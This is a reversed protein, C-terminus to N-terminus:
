RDRDPSLRRDGLVVHQRRDGRRQQGRLRQLVGEPDLARNLKWYERGTVADLAVIELATGTYMVGDVVLPTNEMKNQANTNKAYLPHYSWKLQLNKVNSRNIQSLQSYRHGSYNGSYLLWNHPERDARLLRDYTVDASSAALLLPLLLLMRVHM